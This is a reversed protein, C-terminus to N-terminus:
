ASMCLRIVRITIQPCKNQCSNYPFRQRKSTIALTTNSRQQNLMGNLHTLPTSTFIPNNYVYAPSHSTEFSNIAKSPVKPVRRIIQKLLLKHGYSKPGLKKQRIFIRQWTLQRFKHRVSTHPMHRWNKYSCFNTRHRIDSKKEAFALQLM